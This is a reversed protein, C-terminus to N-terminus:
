ISVVEIDFDSYCLICHPSKLRKFQQDVSKKIKIWNKKFM